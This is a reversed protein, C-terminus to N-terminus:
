ALPGLLLSMLGGAAFFGAMPLPGAPRAAGGIPLRNLLLYAAAVLYGILVIQTAMVWGAWAGCAMALKVDGAGGGSHAYPILMLTGCGLCGVLSQVPTVSSFDPLLWATLWGIGIAPYTLSNRIKRDRIDTISAAVLLGALVIGSGVIREFPFLGDTEFGFDLLFMTAM